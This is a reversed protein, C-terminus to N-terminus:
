RMVILVNKQEVIMNILHVGQLKPSYVNNLLLSHVIMANAQDM